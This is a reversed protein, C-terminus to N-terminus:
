YVTQHLHCFHILWKSLVSTRLTGRRPHILSGLEARDVLRCLCGNKEPLRWLCRLGGRDLRGAWVIPNGDALVYLAKRYAARFEASRRLKVVHDLNIALVAFSSCTDCDGAIRANTPVLAECNIKGKEVFFPPVAMPRQEVFTAAINRRCCRTATKMASPANSAPGGPCATDHFADRDLDAGRAIVRNGKTRVKFLM